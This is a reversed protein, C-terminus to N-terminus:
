KNFFLSNRIFESVTQKNEWSKQKLIEFEKQSILFTIRKKAENQKKM